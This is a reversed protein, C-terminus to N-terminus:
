DIAFLYYRNLLKDWYLKTSKNPYYFDIYRSLKLGCFGNLNDSNNLYIVNPNNRLFKQDLSYENHFNNYNNYCGFCSQIRNKDEEISSTSDGKIIYYKDNIKSICKVHYTIIKEKCLEALSYNNIITFGRNQYKIARDVTRDTKWHHQSLKFNLQKNFIQNLKTTYVKRNQYFNKCIDFDYYETLYDIISQQDNDIDVYILQLKREALQYKNKYFSRLSYWRYSQSAETQGPIPGFYNVLRHIKVSTMQADADYFKYESLKAFDKFDQTVELETKNNATPIYIDIDSGEFREDLITQIIFSGSIFAKTSKMFILFEDYDEVYSKLRKEIKDAIIENFVNEDIYENYQKCTLKLRYVSVVNFYKLIDTPLCYM